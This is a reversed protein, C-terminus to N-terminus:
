IGSLGALARCREIILFSIITHPGIRMWNPWFGKYLGGLGETRLTQLLCDLTSTYPRRAGAVPLQGAAISRQQNM